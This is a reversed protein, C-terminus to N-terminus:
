GTLRVVTDPRYIQAASAFRDLVDILSGRHVSINRRGCEVVLPDDSVNTSTTVVLRDIRHCRMLREIQRFLMPQGLIPELVKGPLPTSSVRAQLLALIM